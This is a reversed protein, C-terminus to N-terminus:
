ELDSYPCEGLNNAGNMKGHMGYGQGRPMKGSEFAEEMQVRHQQRETQREQMQNFHEETLQSEMLTKWGSYDGNSIAEELANHFEQKQVKEEETLGLMKGSGMGFASVLGVGLLAIAFVALISMTYKKKM